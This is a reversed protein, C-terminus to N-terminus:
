HFGYLIKKKRWLFLTCLMEKLYKLSIKVIRVYNSLLILGLQNGDSFVATKSDAIGAAGPDLKIVNKVELTEADVEYVEPKKRGIRVYLKNQPVPSTVM